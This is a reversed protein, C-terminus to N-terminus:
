LLVKLHPYLLNGRKIMEPSTDVGLINNYGISNLLKCTRGYGCGYDLISTDTSVQRMFEDTDIELNFDVDKAVLDWAESQM